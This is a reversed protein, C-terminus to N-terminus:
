GWNMALVSLLSLCGRMSMTREIGKESMSRGETLVLLWNSMRVGATCAKITDLDRNMLDWMLEKDCIIPPKRVPPLIIHLSAPRYVPTELGRDICELVCQWGKGGVISLTVANWPWM